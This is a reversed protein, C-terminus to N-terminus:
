RLGIYALTLSRFIASTPRVFPARRQWDVCEKFVNQEFDMEGIVNRRFGFDQVRKIWVPGLSSLAALGPHSQLRRSWFGSANLRGTWVGNEKLCLALSEQCLTHM